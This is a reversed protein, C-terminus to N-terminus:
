MEVIWFSENPVNERTVHSQNDGDVLKVWLSPLQMYMRPRSAM